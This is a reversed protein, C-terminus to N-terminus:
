LNFKTERCIQTKISKKGTEPLLEIAAVDGHLSRNLNLSGIIRIEFDYKPIFVSGDNIDNRDIKIKGQFLDGSKM